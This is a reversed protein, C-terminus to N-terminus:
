PAIGLFAAFLPIAILLAPIALVCVIAVLIWRLWARGKLALRARTSGTRHDSVM